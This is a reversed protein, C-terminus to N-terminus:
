ATLNLLTNYEDQTTVLYSDLIAQLEASLPPKRIIKKIIGMSQATDQHWNKSRSWEQRDDVQWNLAEPMFDLNAFDCYNKVTKNTKNILDISDIMHYSQKLQQMRKVLDLVYGFGMSNQKAKPNMRLHSSIVEEPNRIMFANKVSTNFLDTELLNSYNYDTTEKFFVQQKQALTLLHEIVQQQKHLSIKGGNGDPLDVQGDDTIACFPEHICLCDGRQVMMRFFATSRSRPIAWLAFLGTKQKVAVM